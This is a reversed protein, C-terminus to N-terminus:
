PRRGRKKPVLVTVSTLSGTGVFPQVQIQKYLDIDSQGVSTVEGVPIGEPYLSSLTPTRWGATVLTDGVNVVEDKTVRDLVLAESGARGRRVIGSAGTALDVATVAVAEDSLLTVQAVDPGVKTVQGVLGDSTVVADNVRIGHSRGAAIGIQQDFQSPARSIVSANVARFDRPFAAGTV